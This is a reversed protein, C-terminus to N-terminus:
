ITLRLNKYMRSMVLIMLNACCHIANRKKIKIYNEELKLVRESINENYNNKNTKEFFEVKPDNKSTLFHTLEKFQQEHIALVNFIVSM